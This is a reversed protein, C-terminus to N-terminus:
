QVPFFSKLINVSIEPLIFLGVNELSRGQDVFFFIMTVKNVRYGNKKGQFGTERLGYSRKLVKFVSFFRILFKPFPFVASLFWIFLQIFYCSDIIFLIKASIKLIWKFISNWIRSLDIYEYNRYSYYCLYFSPIISLTRTFYYM